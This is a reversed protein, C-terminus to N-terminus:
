PQMIQRALTGQGDNPQAEIGLLPTLLAYVELNDVLGLQRQRIAPGHVILLGHMDELQPDYGHQGLPTKRTPNDSVAYGQESLCVIDPIRRHTGFKFRKPMEQKLWCQVHSLTALAGLVDKASEGNLRVGATPGLWEWRAASFPALLSKVQIVQDPPALSMGHDSVVVLTTHELLHSEKLAAMLKGISQDVKQAALRVQASDPGANHGASDVDSFYLTAFDPRQDTPRKLWGLLVQLRDDHTMEHNYPLWDNPRMGQITTESGPWFLTSAIKGQQRLSVWIPRAEQWWLPNEVAERSGLTFRQPTAADTMTNNVIGHHDPTQGTVLTVHNPFTLSPFASILGKAQAGEQALQYLHPTEAASLYAPKFGDLSILIVLPKPALAPDIAQAHSSVLGGVSCLLAACFAFVNKMRM